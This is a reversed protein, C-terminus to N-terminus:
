VERLDFAIAQAPTEGRQQLSCPPEPIRLPANREQRADGSLVAGIQGFIQKAETVGDVADLPSCGREVGRADIMQILVGVGSIHREQQMIAVHRIRGVQDPQHLLDARGLDVVESRLAM